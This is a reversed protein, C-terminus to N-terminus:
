RGKKANTDPIGVCTTFGDTERAVRGCPVAKVTKTSGDPEVIVRGTGTDLTPLPGTSYPKSPGPAYAGTYGKPAPESAKPTSAAPAPASSPESIPPPGPLPPPHGITDGTTGPTQQALAASSVLTLLVTAVFCILRMSDEERCGVMKRGEQRVRLRAWAAQHGIAAPFSARFFWNRQGAAALEEHELIGAVVDGLKGVTNASTSAV